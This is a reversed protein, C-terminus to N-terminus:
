WTPPGEPSMIARNRLCPELCLLLFAAGVFWAHRPHRRRVEGEETGRRALPLIHAEYVREVDLSRTGARIYAGGTLRAVERLPAEDLRSWVERGEHQLFLRGAATTVPIRAGDGHDGLGIAIIPVPRGEALRAAAEVPYSGHDDGDSLLVIVAHGPADEPLSEAALRLADGPLSGGRPMTDPHLESLASRFTAHDITLPCRVQATGAFGILGVRDGAAADLLALVIERARELRDPTADEALMSRSCDMVVMIDLARPRVARIELGSRPDLLAGGLLVLGVVLLAGRLRRRAARTRGALRARMSTTFVRGLRVESRRVALMRLLLAAPAVLLWALYGPQEFVLDM